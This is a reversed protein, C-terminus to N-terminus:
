CDDDLLPERFAIWTRTPLVSPAIDSTIESLALVTQMNTSSPQWPCAAKCLQMWIKTAKVQRYIHYLIIGVFTVFAVSISISTVATLSGQVTRIYQTAAALIGLNLIFSMELAVLYRNQYIKVTLSALIALGLATSTIAVLNISPDGTGNYAFILYLICRLLLLLGTWYRHRDAFPAHYADIFSRVRPKNIWKFVRWEAMRAPLWQSTLLLLTYPVVVTLLGFVAAIFLPVHKGRLYQVNGDLLWVAVNRNPYQLFVVSLAQIITRLIKSYSLLFLTALVAIPNTGLLRAVRNSYNCAAILIGMLAWIYIPFIFQLWTKGYADMGDYFCTEIGLDLNLWAIFVTLINSNGAPYFVIFNLQVINAYFILGSLTGTAVTLKLFVLLVVLAVGAFAFALLLSLYNNSCHLCRFTGFVLSFDERCQGCLLGSRNNSCEVDSNYPSILVRENTCYDFTCFPHLISENTELDFGIWFESNQPRLIRQDDITCTNTFQQLRNECICIQESPSFDFGLPCPLIELEVIISRGTRSCPGDAYFLLRDSVEVETSLVTYELETCTTNTNVNQIVAARFSINSSPSFDTLIAAPVPGQNQGLAIVSIRLQGGPSIRRQIPTQSCNPPESGNCSCVQLADSSIDLFQVSPRVIMEFLVASSFSSLAGPTVECNNISGGYLDAGAVTASNNRFEFSVNLQDTFFQLDHIQYFCQSLALSNNLTSSQESDFCVTFPNTDDVFVAGGFVSASNNLFSVTTGLASLSCTAQGALYLAGGQSALNAAFINYHGLIALNSESVYIAGGFDALNADFIINGVSTIAAVSRSAYVAGGYEAQNEHFTIESGRLGLSSQSLMIGGGYVATNDEVTSNNLINVSTFDAIFLGGGAFRACNGVFESDSLTFACRTVFIGGGSSGFNNRFSCRTLQAIVGAFAVVGGGQIASNNIFTNDTFVINAFPPLASDRYGLAMGGGAGLAFNNSFNNGSVNAVIRNASVAGGTFTASNNMFVNGTLNLHTVDTVYMGGGQALSPSTVTRNNATNGVFHNRNLIVTAPNRKATFSETNQGVIALGGGASQASNITFNNDTFTVAADSSEMPAYVGGGAFSATNRLFTNKTFIATGHCSVFVGGGSVASNNEFHSSILKLHTSNVALAGGSGIANINAQFVCNLLEAHSVSELSVAGENNNGCSIFGIAYM